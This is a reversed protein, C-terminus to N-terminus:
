GGVSPTMASAFTNVACSRCASPWRSLRPAGGSFFCSESHRASTSPQRLSHSACTRGLKPFSVVGSRGSYTTSESCFTSGSSAIRVQSEPTCWLQNMCNQFGFRACLM